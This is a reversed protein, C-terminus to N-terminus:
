FKNSKLKYYANPHPLKSSDINYGDNKNPIFLLKSKLLQLWIDAFKADGILVVQNIGKWIM